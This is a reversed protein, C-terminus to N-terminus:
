RAREDREEEVPAGPAASDGSAQLRDNEKMREWTEFLLERIAKALEPPMRPKGQQPDAPQIEERDVVNSM